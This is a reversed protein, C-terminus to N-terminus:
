RSALSLVAHQPVPRSIDVGMKVCFRDMAQPLPIRVALWDVGNEDTHRSVYPIHSFICPDGSGHMYRCKDGKHCKKGALWRYCPTNRFHGASRIKRVLHKPVYLATACDDFVDTLCQASPVSPMKDAKYCKDCRGDDEAQRNRPVANWCYQIICFRQVSPDYVKNSVNENFEHKILNRQEYHTHKWCEPCVPGGSKKSCGKAYCPIWPYHGFWQAPYKQAQVDPGRYSKTSSAVRQQAQVDYWPRDGRVRQQAKRICGLLSRICVQTLFM